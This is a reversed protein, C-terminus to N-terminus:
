QSQMRMQQPPAEYQATVTQEREQEQEQEHEEEHEDQQNGQKSELDVTAYVEQKPADVSSYPGGALNLFNDTSPSTEGGIVAHGILLWEPAGPDGAKVSDILNPAYDLDYGGLYRACLQYSLPLSAPHLDRRQNGRMKLAVPTPVVAAVVRNWPPRSERMRSLASTLGHGALGYPAEEIPSQEYLGLRHHATGHLMRELQDIDLRDYAGSPYIRKAEIFGVGETRVGNPYDIRVLVAIDGYLNEPKGKLKLTDWEMAYPRGLDTVEVDKLERRLARMWSKTADNEDWDRPLIESLATTIVEETRKLWSSFSLKKMTGLSTSYAGATLPM